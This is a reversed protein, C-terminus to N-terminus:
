AYRPEQQNLIPPSCVILSNIRIRLQNLHHCPTNWCNTNLAESIELLELDCLLDVRFGMLIGLWGASISFLSRLSRIENEPCQLQSFPYRLHKWEPGLHNIGIWTAPCCTWGIGMQIGLTDGSPSFPSEVYPNRNETSWLQPFPYELHKWNPELHNRVIGSPVPIFRGRHVDLNGSIGCQPLVCEWVKSDWQRYKSATYLPIEATEIRTGSIELLERHWLLSDVGIRM